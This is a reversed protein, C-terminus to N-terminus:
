IRVATDWFSCGLEIARKLVNISEQEDSTGYAGSMGKWFFNWDFWM